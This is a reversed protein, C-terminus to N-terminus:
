KLQCTRSQLSFRMELADAIHMGIGDLNERNFPFFGLFGSKKDLGM